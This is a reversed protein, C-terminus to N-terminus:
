KGGNKLLSWALRRFNKNLLVRLCRAAIVGAQVRGRLSVEMELVSRDFVPIIELSDGYWAYAVSFAQLAKGTAAPDDFGFVARGRIKRPLIHRIIGKIQGIIIKITKQNREDNWFLVAKEKYGKLRSWSNTASEKLRAMTERLGPGASGAERKEAKGRRGKKRKRDRRRKKQEYDGPDKEEEHIDTGAGSDEGQYEERSGEEKANLRNDEQGPATGGNEPGQPETEWGDEATEVFDVSLGDEAIEGAKRADERLEDKVDELAEGAGETKHFVRKGLVKVAMDLGDEYTVRLSLAHLLWTVKINGQVRGHYSGSLGYRVPVFLVLLLIALVLGLLALIVIGIIKLIMLLIPLM